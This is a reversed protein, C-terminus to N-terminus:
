GGGRRLGLQSCVGLSQSLFRTFMCKEDASSRTMEIREIRNSLLRGDKKEPM